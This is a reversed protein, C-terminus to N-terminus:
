DTLRIRGNCNISNSTKLEDIWADIWDTRWLKFQRCKQLYDMVADSEGLLALTNALELDLIDLVLKKRLKLLRKKAESINGLRVAILGKIMSGTRCKLTAQKNISELENACINADEDRELWLACRACKYFQVSRLSSSLPQTLIFRKGFELSENAFRLKETGESQLARQFCFNAYEALIYDDFPKVILAQKILLSGYDFNTELIAWGANEAVALDAQFCSVKREWLKSIEEKLIKSCEFGIRNL